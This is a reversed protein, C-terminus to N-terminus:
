ASDHRESRVDTRQSLRHSGHAGGLNETRIQDAPEVKSHNAVPSHFPNSTSAQCAASGAVPSMATRSLTSNCGSPDISVQLLRQKVAAPDAGRSDNPRSVYSPLPAGLAVGLM